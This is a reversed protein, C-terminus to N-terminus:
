KKFREILTLITEKAHEPLDNWGDIIQQLDAPFDSERASTQTSNQPPQTKGNEYTNSKSPNTNKPRQGGSGFTAPEFGAPSSENTM